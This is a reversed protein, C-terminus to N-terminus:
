RYQATGPHFNRWSHWFEQSSEVRALRRSPDALDRGAFDYSRGGAEIVDDRLTCQIGSAPREFASVSQRDLSLAVVIPKGNISDNIIRERILRSWDYAKSVGGVEIGVVWASGPWKAPDTGPLIEASQDREFKGEPQYDRLSEAEAQMILTDPHLEIWKRLTFQDSPIEKLRAGKMPGTVAEGTAQRWWSGTEADEFITNFHDMGVLRFTTLRGNVTPDYVKGTRCVICYTVMIRKGGISDRVQHHYALFRLPYAKVVGNIEIGLVLSGENVLNERRNKLTLQEYEEFMHEASLRYNFSWVIILSCLIAAAPLWKHRIAFAQRVGAVVMLLFVARVYWRISFLFYAFELNGSEQVGPLPLLFYGKLVALLAVGALGVYFSLIAIM